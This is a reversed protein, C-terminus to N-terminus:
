LQGVMEKLVEGPAAGGLGRHQQQCHEADPCVGREFCGDDM